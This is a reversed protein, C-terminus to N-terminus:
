VLWNSEILFAVSKLKFKYLERELKPFVVFSVLSCKNFAFVVQFVNNSDQVFVNFEVNSDKVLVKGLSVKLTSKNLFANFVFM